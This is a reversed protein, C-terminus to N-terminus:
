WLYCSLNNNSYVIMLLLGLHTKNKNRGTNQKKDSLFFFCFLKWSVNLKWLGSYRELSENCTVCVKSLNVFVSNFYSLCGRLFDSILLSAKLKDSCIFFNWCVCIFGSWFKISKDFLSFSKAEYNVSSTTIKFLMFSFIVSCMKEKCEAKGEISPLM